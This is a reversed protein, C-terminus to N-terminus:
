KLKQEMLFWNEKLFNNLEDSIVGNTEFGVFKKEVSSIYTEIKLPPMEKKQLNNCSPLCIIVTLLVILKIIKM